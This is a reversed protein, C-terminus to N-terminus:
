NMISLDLVYPSVNLEACPRVPKRLPRASRPLVSNGRVTPGLANGGYGGDTRVPNWCLQTYLWGCCLGAIFSPCGEGTGCVDEYKYIECQPCFCKM